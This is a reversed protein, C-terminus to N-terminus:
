EAKRELKGIVDDTIDTGGVFVMAKALVYAYSKEAAVKNIAERIESEVKTELEQAKSDLQSNYDKEMQEGISKSKQQMDTLEKLRAKQEDTLQPTTQLKKLEDDAARELDTLEKIRKTDPDAPNPKLKLDVLEKVQAESLMTNLSRIELKTGLEARLKARVEDYQKVRPADSYLKEVDVIGIKLPADAAFAAGGLLAAAAVACLARWGMAGSKIM